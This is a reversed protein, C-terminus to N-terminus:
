GREWAEASARQGLISTNYNKSFTKNQTAHEGASLWGITADQVAINNSPAISWATMCELFLMENESLSLYDWLIVPMCMRLQEEALHQPSFQIAQFDTSTGTM